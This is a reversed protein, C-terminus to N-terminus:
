RLGRSVNAVVMEATRPSSDKLIARSYAEFYQLLHDALRVVAQGTGSPKDTFADLEIRSKTTAQGTVERTRPRQKLDTALNSRSQLHIPRLDSPLRWGPRQTSRYTQASIGATATASGWTAGQRQCWAAAIRASLLLVDVLETETVVHTGAFPQEALREDTWVRFAAFTAGSAHFEFYNDQHTLGTLLREAGFIIRGPRVGVYSDLAIRRMPSSPALQNLWVSVDAPTGATLENPQPLDPVVAMHVWTGPAATLETVGDTVVEDVIRDRDVVATARQQYRDAVEPETLWRTEAGDRVPYRLPRRGDHGVPVLVAHPGIRSPPVVAVLVEDGTAFNRVPVLDVDVSPATRTALWGLLRQSLDTAPQTLPEIRDARADTEHLGLIIMGGRRNALAACDKAWEAPGPWSPNQDAYPSQGSKFDLIESEPQDLFSVISQWTLGSSDLLGGVIAELYPNRWKAM